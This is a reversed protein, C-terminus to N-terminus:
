DHDFNVLHESDMNLCPAEQVLAQKSLQLKRTRVWPQAFVSDEVTVQYTLTNGDRTFREIVHMDVTHFLGSSGLWQLDDFNNTDVVLTNGDWHAVSDGDLSPDLDTRHPKDIPVMRFHMAGGYLLVVKDPFQIIQQPAGMRPVGREVCNFAPDLQNSHYDLDDVKARFEPKYTPSERHASDSFAKAGRITGGINDNPDDPDVPPLDKANGNVVKGNIKSFNPGGGGPGAPPLWIGNLDPREDATKPTSAKAGKAASAQTKTNAQGQQAAAPLSMVGCICTFLGTVALARLSGSYLHVKM